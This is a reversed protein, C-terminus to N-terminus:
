RIFQFEPTMMLSWLLDALGDPSPRGPGAPDRLAAQAIQREAPSPARGLAYWYVRNVVQPITKPVPGSPLPTTLNPPVLRDMSPPQDFVFFRATVGEGQLMQVNEMAPAGHFRTFGKGGIDYVVVSTLKVRLADTVAEHSGALIIPSTDNRLGMTNEPTLATLPTAAGGPGTFSARLWLPTAKGPSLSM